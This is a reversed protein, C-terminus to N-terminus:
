TGPTQDTLIEGARIESAEEEGGRMAGAQWCLPSLSGQECRGTSWGPGAQEGMAKAEGQTGQNPM